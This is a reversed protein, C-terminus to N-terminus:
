PESPTAVALLTALDRCGTGGVLRLFGKSQGGRLRGTECCCRARLYPRVPEWRVGANGPFYLIARARGDM